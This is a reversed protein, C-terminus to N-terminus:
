PFPRNRCLASESIVSVDTAVATDELPYARSGRSIMKGAGSHAFPNALIPIGTGKNWAVLYKLARMIMTAAKSEAPIM